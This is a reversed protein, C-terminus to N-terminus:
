ETRMTSKGFSPVTSSSASSNYIQGTHTRRYETPLRGVSADDSVAGPDLEIQMPATNGYGPQVSAIALAM